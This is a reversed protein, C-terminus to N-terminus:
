WGDERIGAGHQQAEIAVLNTFNTVHVGVV